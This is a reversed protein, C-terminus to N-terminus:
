GERVEEYGRKVAELNGDIIKQSFKKGFSKKVDELILDLSVIGSVKALVGVMPSNPLPRGINEIAIKTADVTLVRQTPKAKLKERLEKPDKASNVIFVADDLAGETVDIGDLLTADVVAVINPKLVPCHMRLEKSSVRNYARLPAGSREPGYEPFAQVHRGGSLCADAFVKAATVTGQGGRGHWRIELTEAM